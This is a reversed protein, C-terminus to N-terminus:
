HYLPNGFLNEVTKAWIEFKEFDSTEDGVIQEHTYGYTRMM